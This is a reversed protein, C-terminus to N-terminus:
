LQFIAEVEAHVLDAGRAQARRTHAHHTTHPTHHQTVELSRERGTRSDLQPSAPIRASDRILFTEASCPLRSQRSGHLYSGQVTELGAM